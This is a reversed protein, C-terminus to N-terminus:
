MLTVARCVWFARVRRLAPHRCRVSQDRGGAEAVAACHQVVHIRTLQCCHLTKERRPAQKQAHTGSTRHLSRTFPNQQGSRRDPSCPLLADCTSPSHHSVWPHYPREGVPEIYEPPMAAIRRGCAAPALSVASWRDPGAPSRASSKESQNFHRTSDTLGDASRGMARVTWLASMSTAQGQELLPHWELGQCVTKTDEPELRMCWSHGAAAELPLSRGDIDLNNQSDGPRDAGAAGAGSDAEDCLSSGRLVVVHTTKLCHRRRGPSQLM